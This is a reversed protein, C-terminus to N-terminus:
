ECDPITYMKLFGPWTSSTSYGKAVLVKITKAVTVPKPVWAECIVSNGDKKWGTCFERETTRPYSYPGVVWEKCVWNPANGSGPAPNQLELEPCYKMDKISRLETETLCVNNLPINGLDEDFTLILQKTKFIKEWPTQPGWGKDPSIPSSFAASAILTLSLVLLTRM